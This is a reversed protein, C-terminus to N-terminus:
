EDDDDDDDDDDDNNNNNNQMKTCQKHCKHKTSTFEKTADLAILLIKILRSRLTNMINNHKLKVM